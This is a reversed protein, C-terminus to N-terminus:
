AREGDAKVVRVAVEHEGAICRQYAAAHVRILKYYPPPRSFRPPSLWPERRKKKRGARSIFYLVLSVVISIVICTVLPFYVTTHKGRDVIDGPLRGVPLNVRGAAILILGFILLLAGFVVLMKGIDAM